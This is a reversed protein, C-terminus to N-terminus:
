RFLGWHTGLSQILGTFLAALSSPVVVYWGILPLAPYVIKVMQNGHSTLGAIALALYVLVAGFWGVSFIIHLTLVFKRIGPTMTTSNSYSVTDPKSINQEEMTGDITKKM